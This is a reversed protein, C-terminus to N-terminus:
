KMIIEFSASELREKNLIVTFHEFEANATMEANPNSILEVITLYIFNDADEHTESSYQNITTLLLDRFYLDYDTRTLTRPNMDVFLSTSNSTIYSRFLLNNDLNRYVTQIGSSSLEIDFVYNNHTSSKYDYSIANYLMKETESVLTVPIPTEKIPVFGDDSSLKLKRYRLNVSEDLESRVTLYLYDNFITYIEDSEDITLPTIRYDPAIIRHLIVAAEARTLLNNGGFTDDPYGTIVGTYVCKLVSTKYTDPISTYDKLYGSYDLLNEPFIMDNDLYNGIIISVDYRSIPIDYDTLDVGDLWNQTLAYNIYDTAWYGDTDDLTSDKTEALMKILEDAQLTKSPRFTKDGYGSIIGEELLPSLDEYFWDSESIDTLTVGNVSLPYLSLVVILCILIAKKM